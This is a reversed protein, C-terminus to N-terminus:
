RKPQAEYEANASDVVMGVSEYLGIAAANGADVWLTGRQVRPDGALLQFGADVLRRGWGSGHADPHVAIRYIEGDGNPHVKTWCFGVVGDGSAAVLIGRADFWPERSIEDFADRDLAAAERHNSFAARNVALVADLDGSDFVRVGPDPETALGELDRTMHLLRRVEAFHLRLLADDLSGRSSWVSLASSPVSALTQELVTMEFQPFSLDPRVATEIAWHETGDPQPHPMAVGVAVVDDGETVTVLEGRNSRLGIRKAESLPERRTTAAVAALFDEIAPSEDM